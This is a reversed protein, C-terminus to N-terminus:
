DAREGEGSPRGGFGLVGKGVRGPQWLRAAAAQNKAFVVIGSTELDLRGIARIKVQLSSEYEYRLYNALTDKWHGHAPHVATGSPKNVAALDEDEYLIELPGCVAELDPFRNGAGGAAGAAPGGERVKEATRM